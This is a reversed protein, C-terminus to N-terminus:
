ATKQPAITPAPKPVVWRSAFLAIEYLLVMPMMVVTPAVIPDAVPTVLEAFVFIVFWAIKRQKRLQQPSVIGIRVLVLLVIPLEFAIGTALLFYTVFSIYQDAMPLYAIPSANPDGFMGILVTFMNSLMVYGFLNGLLFLVVMAVVGPVLWRKEHPLLGPELFKLVQYIWIPAALAIGGYLAVRFRVMFGDMPSPAQLKLNGAPATLLYLLTDAFFYAITTTVLIAILAIFLRRRIEELHDLFGMRKEEPM